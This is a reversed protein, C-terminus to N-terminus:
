FNENRMTSSVQFNYTGGDFFPRILPTLLPWSCQLNIVLTEGPGGFGGLVNGDPDTVVMDTVVSDYLGLSSLKIKEAVAAPRLRDDPNPNPDLDIRGTIAYRAGERVAHQMTMNVWFLAGLEIIAMLLILLVPIILAFEVVTAGKKFSPNKRRLLNILGNM